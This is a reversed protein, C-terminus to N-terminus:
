SIYKILKPGTDIKSVRVDREIFIIKGKFDRPFYDPSLHCHPLVLAEKSNKLRNEMLDYKPIPQYEFPVSNLNLLM